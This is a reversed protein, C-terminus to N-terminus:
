KWGRLHVEGSYRKRKLEWINPLVNAKCKSPQNWRDHNSEISKNKQKTTAGEKITERYKVTWAEMEIPENTQNTM